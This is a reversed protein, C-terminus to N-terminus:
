SSAATTSCRRRSRRRGSPQRHVVAGRRHGSRLRRHAGVLQGAARRRAPRPDGGAHQALRPRQRARGEVARTRDERRAGAPVVVHPSRLAPHGPRPLAGALQRPGVACRVARVRHRPPAVLDSPREGPRARRAPRQRVLRLRARRRRGADPHRPQAERAARPVPGVAPTRHAWLRRGHRSPVGRRRARARRRRRPRRRRGGIASERGALSRDDRALRPQSGGGAVPARGVQSTVIVRDGVVIPSSTGAGALTARWALHETASWTTPLPAETSIAASGPGRWQPWDQAAAGAVTATLWFRPWRWAAGCAAGSRPSEPWAPPIRCITRRANRGRRGAGAAMAGGIPNRNRARPPRSAAVQGPLAAAAAGSRAQEAILAELHAIAADLQADDGKFTAHPLNDVVIDPDVGHGEILWEGEPGYVGTEAATAIGRDVLFNSSSLWIEGGWTRTGIIKGIGLRRFGEAFAEGDSATFHDTLVVMHGRFAYQMNWTPQGARPQWYFWAKRLLRGLVWSDINGGRNHRVDIILGERNFVPYFERAWEAINDGGM